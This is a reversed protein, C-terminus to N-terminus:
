PKRLQEYAAIGPDPKLIRLVKDKPIEREEKITKAINVEVIYSKDTERIISGDIKDGNTLVFTDAQALFPLLALSTFLTRLPHM